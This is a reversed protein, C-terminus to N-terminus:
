VWTRKVHASVWKILLNLLLIVILILLSIASALEFDPQEGSMISWIHVALTTGQSRLTPDDTIITGMTYILAASEGIIRGVSLLVGNLMGPIACPLVIHFITQSRSAGLSLSGERLYQPVVALAEQAARIITPLLIVSMTLAGLLISTTHIRFMQTIPFLVTVGMLGFVISPVGSLLEIGSQLFSQMRTKDAYEQLYLAAGIGIPVALLLSVVLLLLTTVISGRIGGGQTKVYLSDLTATQDLTHVLAAANQNVISGAYAVSGDLRHYRVEEIRMGQRLAFPQPDSKVSVDRMTQFPSNVDVYGVAIVKGHDGDTEDGLAIGWRSSFYVSADMDNPREFTQHTTEATEVRYNKAWYDDCLLHWNLLPAGKQFVFFFLTLLVIVSLLSSAYTVLNCLRDYGEMRAKRM